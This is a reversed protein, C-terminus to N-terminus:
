SRTDSIAEIVIGGFRAEDARCEINDIYCTHSPYIEQTDVILAQFGGSMSLNSFALKQGQANSARGFCDSCLSKPYRESHPTQNSCIPCNHTQLNTM